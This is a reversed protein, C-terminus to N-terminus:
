KTPNLGGLSDRCDTTPGLRAAVQEEDRRGRRMALVVLLCTGGSILADGPSAVKRLVPVPIIDGLQALRTTAGAPANKPGELGPPLGVRASAAPNYPMQGNLGIVLANLAAGLVIALGALRIAAPWRRVNISLWTLVIGFVPVLMPIGLVDEMVHRVGPAFYQAFQVAAALWVLWPARVPVAGLGALRGGCLYGIMVGAVPPTITLLFFTFSV